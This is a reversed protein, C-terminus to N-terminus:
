VGRLGTREDEEEWSLVHELGRGVGERTGTGNVELLQSGSDGGAGGVVRDSGSSCVETALVDSRTGPGNNIGESAWSSLSDAVLHGSTSAIGINPPKLIVVWGWDTKEDSGASYPVQFSEVRYFYM